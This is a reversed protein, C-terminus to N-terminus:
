LIISGKKAAEFLTRFFNENCPAPDVMLKTM